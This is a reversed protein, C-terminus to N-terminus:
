TLWSNQPSTTFWTFFFKSPNNTIETVTIKRKQAGNSSQSETEIERRRWNWHKLFYSIQQLYVTPLSPFLKVHIRGRLLTHNPKTGEGKEVSDLTLNQFYSFWWIKTNHTSEQYTKGESTILSEHVINQKIISSLIYAHGMTTDTSM